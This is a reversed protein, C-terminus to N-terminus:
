IVLTKNKSKTTQSTKRQQNTNTRKPQHSTPSNINSSCKMGNLKSMTTQQIQHPKPTHNAKCTDSKGDDVTSQHDSNSLVEISGENVKKREEDNPDSNMEGSLSDFTVDIPLRPISFSRRTLEELKKAFVAIQQESIREIAATCAEIISNLTQPNIHSVSSSMSPYEDLDNSNPATAPSHTITSSRSYRDVASQVRKQEEKYRPCESSTAQHSGQCNCCKPQQQKQDCVDYCHSGTCHSCNPHSQKCYRAIHGFRHCSLCQQPLVKQKAKETPFHMHEIQLGLKAFTDRNSVDGFTIKITTGPGSKDKNTLREVQNVQYGNRVLANQIDNISLERDVNKM